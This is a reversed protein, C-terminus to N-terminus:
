VCKLHSITRHHRIGLSGKSMKAIKARDLLRPVVLDAVVNVCDKPVCVKPAKTTSSAAAHSTSLSPDHFFHASTFNWWVMLRKLFEQYRTNLFASSDQNRLNWYVGRDKKCLIFIIFVRTPHRSLNQRMFVLSCQATDGGAM